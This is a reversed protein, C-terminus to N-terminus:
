EWGYEKMDLHWDSGDTVRLNRGKSEYRVQDLDVTSPLVNVVVNGAHLSIIRSRKEPKTPSDTLIRRERGGNFPDNMELGVANLEEVLPLRLLPLL